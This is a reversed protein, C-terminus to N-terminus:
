GIRDHQRRDREHPSSGESLRTRLHELARAYRRRVTAASMRLAVGVEEASWGEVARLLVLARTDPKLDAVLRRVDDHPAGGEAGGPDEPGVLDEGRDALPQPWRAERRAADRAANRAIRFLWPLFREERRLEPLHAWANLFAAQLADEADDRRRLLGALFLFVGHGVQAYLGSFAERDGRKARAVLSVLAAVPDSTRPM